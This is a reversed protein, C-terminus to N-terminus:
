LNNEKGKIVKIKQIFKDETLKGNMGFVITWNGNDADTVINQTYSCDSPSRQVLENNPNWLECYKSNPQSM